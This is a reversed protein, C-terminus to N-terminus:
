VYIKLLQVMYQDNESRDLVRRRMHGCCLDPECFRAGYCLTTNVM